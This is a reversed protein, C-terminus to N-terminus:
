ESLGAARLAEGRDLYGGSRSVQGDRFEFIM